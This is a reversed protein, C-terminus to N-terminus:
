SHEGARRLRTLVALMTSGALLMLEFSPEPVVVLGRSVHDLSGIQSVVGADTIWLLWPDDELEDGKEAAYFGAGAGLLTTLETYDHGSLPVNVVVETDPDVTEFIEGAPTNPLGLGSAHYLLDQTLSYGIAEGDSGNGLVLFCDAAADVLSLTCLSEPAYTLAGDGTMAYLIGSSDFAM